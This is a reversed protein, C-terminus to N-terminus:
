LLKMKVFNKPVRVETSYTLPLLSHNTYNGGM